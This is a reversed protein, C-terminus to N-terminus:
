TRSAREYSENLRFAHRLWAGKAATRPLIRAGHGSQYGSRRDGECHGGEAGLGPGGDDVSRDAGTGIVDNAAPVLREGIGPERKAAVGAHKGFRRIADEHRLAALKPQRIRQWGPERSKGARDLHVHQREGIPPDPLVTEVREIPVAADFLPPRLPIM